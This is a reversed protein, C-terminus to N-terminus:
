KKHVKKLLFTKAGYNCYEKKYYDLYNIDNYKNKNKYNSEYFGKLRVKDGVFDGFIYDFPAFYDTIYDKINEFVFCDDDFVLEYTFGNIEYKMDEVEIIM